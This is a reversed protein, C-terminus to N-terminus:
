PDKPSSKELSQAKLSSGKPWCSCGGVFLPPPSLFFAGAGTEANLLVGHDNGVEFSEAGASGLLGDGAVASCSAVLNWAAIAAFAPAKPFGGSPPGICPIDNCCCCCCCSCNGCCKWSCNWCNWCRCCCPKCCRKCGDTASSAWFPKLLLAVPLASAAAVEFAGGTAGALGTSSVKSGPRASIRFLICLLNAANLSDKNPASPALCAPRSGGSLEDVLASLSLLDLIDGGAPLSDAASGTAAPAPLEASFGLIAVPATAVGLAASSHTETAVPSWAAAACTYWCTMAPM